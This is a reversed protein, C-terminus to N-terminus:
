PFRWSVGISDAMGVRSDRAMVPEPGRIWWRNNERRAPIWEGLLTPHRVLVHHGPPLRDEGERWVEIEGHDRGYEGWAELRWRPAGAQRLGGDEGMKALVWGARGHRVAWLGGPERTPAARFPPRSGASVAPADAVAAWAEGYTKRKCRIELASIGADAGRDSPLPCYRVRASRRDGSPEADVWGVVPFRVALRVGPLLKGDPGLAEATPRVLFPAQRPARARPGEEYESYRGEAEARACAALDALVGRDEALPPDGLRPSVEERLWRRWEEVEGRRADGRDRADKAGMCADRAVRWEVAGCLPSPM